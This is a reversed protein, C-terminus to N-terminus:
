HPAASRDISAMALTRQAQVLHLREVMKGDLRIAGKGANEPADFAAIIRRAIEVAEADPTFAANCVDIQRPHILTKGDFGFEVAQRCQIALGELDELANFAGDLIAIGNARAAMVALGFLAQFPLRDLGPQAGSEKALDNTGLVLCSLFGREAASAIDELRFVSRATEVMAWLAIGSGKGLRDEYPLLAAGSDVKPVLIADPQAAIAADLDAAGWETDFGNVRIVVTAAAFGGRLAGALQDRAVQKADPAVADELDLIVVDCPLTRVKEIARLNSAPLYLASRMPREIMAIGAHGAVTGAGASDVGFAGAAITRM